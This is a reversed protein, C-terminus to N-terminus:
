VAGPKVWNPFEHHFIGACCGSLECATVPKPAVGCYAGAAVFAPRGDAQVDVGCFRKLMHFVSFNYVKFSPFYYRLLDLVLEVLELPRM